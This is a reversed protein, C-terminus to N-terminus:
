RIEFFKAGRVLWSWVPIALFMVWTPHWIGAFLGVALYAGVILVPFNFVKLSHRMIAQPISDIVPVAFFIVWLKGWMGPFFISVGIYAILAILYLSMGLIHIHGGRPIDGNESTDIIIDEKEDSPRDTM